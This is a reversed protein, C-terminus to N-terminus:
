CWWDRIRTKTYLGFKEAIYIFFNYYSNWNNISTLFWFCLSCQGYGCPEFRFLLIFLLLSGVHLNLNLLLRFTERQVYASFLSHTENLIGRLWTMKPLPNPFNYILRLLLTPSDCFRLSTFHLSTFYITTLIHLTRLHLSTSHLSPWPSIHTCWNM